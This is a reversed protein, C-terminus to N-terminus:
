PGSRDKRCLRLVARARVLRQEVAGETSHMIEAIKHASLGDLAQMSLVAQQDVPLTSMWRSLERLALRAEASSAGDWALDVFEGDDTSPEDSLVDLWYQLERLTFRAGTAPMSPADPEADDFTEFRRTRARKADIAGNVVIRYLWTRVSSRGDFKGALLARYAKIYADQVVDEADAVNGMM